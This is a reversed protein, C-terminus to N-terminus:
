SSSWNFNQLARLRDAEPPAPIGIIYGPQSDFTNQDQSFVNDDTDWTIQSEFPPRPDLVPRPDPPLIPTRAQQNPDDAFPRGVYFGTWVLDNGRWDMQRVLDKRMFVHGSYDCIGLAEPTDPNITVFKGQPQYSM